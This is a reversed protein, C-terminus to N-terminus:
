SRAVAQRDMYEKALTQIETQVEAMPRNADIVEVRDPWKEAEILFGERVRLFYDRGRSEMRDLEKTRRIGADDSRLNLREMALDVDLDLVFTVNPMLGGTAIRNITWIDNPDLQGAYGQYVVTSFIYRDLLVTQTQQLAPRIVEQVLQTRATTFMLMEALIDIPVQHKELLLQRLRQGLQTSGPDQCTVVQIGQQTLWDAFQHIQTTKGAGDIGEFVFFM